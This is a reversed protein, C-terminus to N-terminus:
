KKKYIIQGSSAEIMIASKANKALNLGGDEENNVVEEGFVFVPIFFLCLFLM